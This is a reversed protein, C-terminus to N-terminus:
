QLPQLYARELGSLLLHGTHRSEVWLLCEATANFPRKLAPARFAYFDYIPAYCDSM